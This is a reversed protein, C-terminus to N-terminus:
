SGRMAVIATITQWWKEYFGGSGWKTQIGIWGLLLTQIRSRQLVFGWQLWGWQLGRERWEQRLVVQGLGQGGLKRQGLVGEVEWEVKALLLQAFVRKGM